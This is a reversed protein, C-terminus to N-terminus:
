GSIESIECGAFLRETDSRTCLKTAETMVAAAAAAVGWRLATELEEHRALSLVLGAMLSDGAGTTSKVPVAPPTGKLHLDKSVLVSGESGLSLVVVEAVGSGVLKDALDAAEHVTTLTMAFAGEAETQDLRLLYPATRPAAVLQSLSAGSTDVCFRVNRQALANAVHAPLDVPAEAPMSGSLVAIGSGPAAKDIVALVWKTDKASWVPGPLIFRYQEGTGADTVAFSQRTEGPVQVILPELGEARLLSLLVDGMTGAMAVLPRSTGGLTAIARSVNIGGGGPNVVPTSCRLKPGAVVRPVITALDVAPNLTITLIDTM